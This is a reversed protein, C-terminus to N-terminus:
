CPVDTLTFFFTAGHDVAAEVWIKGRHLSVIRNVMALGVGNGPFETQKHLRQFAGFLKTAYTMDFGAGNDKVFYVPCGDKMTQGFEIKADPKKSTFKFANGLLNTLAVELFHPDGKVQVNPEIVFEVKRSPDSEELRKTVVRAIESLQVPQLKLEMRSIRSLELLDDILEGMRQTESRVRMLYGSAKDDLLHGYDELLALSWGDIGRLPARLDHSVSYSFSELEKNSRELQQTRALLEGTRETVLDELHKRHALLERETQKAATVDQNIGVMRIVRREEDRVSLAAGKVFRIEGNPWVVRFEASFESEGQLAQQIAARAHPLDEPHVRKSWSERKGEFQELTIGYQRCMEDDWMLRDNVVDWDWVGLNGAHTALQCRDFSRQLQAAMDNFTTSLTELEELPSGALRKSLDGRAVERTVSAFDRLPGTVVSALVLAALLSLVLATAFLMASRSNGIRIGELFYAEPIASILVWGKHGLYPTAQALWTERGLPRETVVDFRYSTEGVMSQMLGPTAILQDVASLCVKDDATAAIVKGTTAEAILARGHEAILLKRLLQDLEARSPPSDRDSLAADLRLEMNRAVEQHLRAALQNASREASRLTVSATGAVMTLILFIFPVVLFARIPLGHRPESSKGQDQGSVWTWEQEHLARQRVSGPSEAWFVGLRRALPLAILMAFPAVMWTISTTFFLAPTISRYSLESTFMGSCLYGWMQPEISMFVLVFLAYWGWTKLKRFDPDKGILEKALWFCAPNIFYGILWDLLFGPPVGEVLDSVGYAFPVALLAPYGFILLCVFVTVDKLSEFTQAGPVLVIFSGLSGTFIIAVFTIVVGLLAKADWTQQERGLGWRGGPKFTLGGYACLMLAVGIIAGFRGWVELVPLPIGRFLAEMWAIAAEM